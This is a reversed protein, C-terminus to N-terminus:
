KDSNQALIYRLLVAATRDEQVAGKLCLAQVEEATFWEPHTHEGEDTVISSPQTDIDTQAVQALYYHLDWIVTAGCVSHHLASFVESTLDLSTEEELEKKAAEAAKQDVDFSLENKADLYEDLSDFVKGGPLRYDWGKTESRWEKTLLIRNGDTALIRVGPSREAFEFNKEVGDSFRVRQTAVRILRGRHQEQPSELVEVFARRTQALLEILEVIEATANAELEGHNDVVAHVHPLINDSSDQLRYAAEDPQDRFLDPSRQMLRDKRVNDPAHVGLILTNELVGKPNISNPNNYLANNGSYVALRDTDTQHFGYREERDGEMRRVWHLGIDGADVKDQFEDGDLHTNEITNDKGRKPRTIYRMPVDVLGKLEVASRIADVIISKGSCTSGVIAVSDINTLTGLKSEDQVRISDLGDIFDKLSDAMFFYIFILNRNFM